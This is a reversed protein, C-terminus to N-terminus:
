GHEEGVVMNGRVVVLSPVLPQMAMGIPSADSLEPLSDEPVDGFLVPVLHIRPPSCAGEKASGPVRILIEDQEGIPIDGPSAGHHPKNLAFSPLAGAQFINQSCRVHVSVGCGVGDLSIWGRVAPELWIFVTIVKPWVFLRMSEPSEFNEMSVQKSVAVSIM